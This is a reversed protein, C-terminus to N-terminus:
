AAIEGDDTSADTQARLYARGSPAGNWRGEAPDVGGAEKQSGGVGGRAHKREDGQWASEGTRSERNV